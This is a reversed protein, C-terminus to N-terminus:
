VRRYCVIFILIGALTWGILSQSMAILTVGLGVISGAYYLLKTM